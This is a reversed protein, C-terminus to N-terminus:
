ESFSSLVTCIVYLIQGLILLVIQLQNILVNGVSTGSQNVFVNGASSPSCRYLRSMCYPGTKQTCHSEGCLRSPDM